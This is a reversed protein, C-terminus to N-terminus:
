LVTAAAAKAIPPLLFYIYTAIRGRERNGRIVEGKIVASTVAVTARM